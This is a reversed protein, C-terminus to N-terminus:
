ARRTRSRTRSASSTSSTGSGTNRPNSGSKRKQIPTAATRARSAATLAPARQSSEPRRLAALRTASWPVPAEIVVRARSHPHTFELRMAHLLPRNLEHAPVGYKPDGVIPLGAHALHVRLQHSRGTIPRLQLTACPGLPPTFRELLEVETKAPRYARRDSEGMTGLAAASAARVQNTAPDKALWADLIFKPEPVRGRVVAQYTRTVAGRAFLATMVRAAGAHKSILVLGSVNRDIRHLVGVGRRGLHVRALDVLNIGAGGEGGQSLVGAPKDIALLGEDQWVIWRRFDLEPAEAKM